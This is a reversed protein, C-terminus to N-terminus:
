YFDKARITKVIGDALTLTHVAGAQAFRLDALARAPWAKPPKGDILMIRDGLKLGAAEAPGHSSLFTVRYGDDKRDLMLGLRDKAFTMTRPDLAPVLWLRDHPYDIIVRFASLLPLSLGGAVVASNVKSVSDPVLAAPVAPFDLGGFRVHRVTAVGEVGGPMLRESVPRGKALRHDEYYKQYVLLYGLNGIWLAFQGPPAGEISLPTTREGNSVILPIARSGAPPRFTTSDRLAVRRHAFDIDVAAHDFVENGLQAVVPGGAVPTLTAPVDTARAHMGHLTMGGIKIDVDDFATSAGESAVHLGARAAFSKDIGTSLGTYLGLVVDHGDIKAPVLLGSRIDALLPIWDAKATDFTVAPETSSVGVPAAGASLGFTAIAVGVISARIL